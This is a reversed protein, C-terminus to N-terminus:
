YVSDNAEPNGCPLSFGTIQEAHLKDSNSGLIGALQNSLLKYEPLYVRLTFIFSQVLM